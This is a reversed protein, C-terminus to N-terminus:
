SPQVGIGLLHEVREAYPQLLTIATTRSVRHKCAVGVVLQEQALVCAVSLLVKHANHLRDFTGGVAGRHYGRM